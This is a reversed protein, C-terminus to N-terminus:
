SFNVTDLFWEAEYKNKHDINYASAETPKLLGEALLQQKKTLHYPVQDSRHLLPSQKLETKTDEPSM